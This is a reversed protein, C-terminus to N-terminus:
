RPATDFFFIKQKQLDQFEITIGKGDPYRAALAAKWEMRDRTDQFVYLVRPWSKVEKLSSAQAQLETLTYHWGTLVPLPDLIMEQLGRRTDHANAYAIRGGSQLLQDYIGYFFECRREEALYVVLTDPSLMTRVQKTMLQQIAEGHRRSFYGHTQLGFM